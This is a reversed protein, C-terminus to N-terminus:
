YGQSWFGAMRSRWQCCSTVAVLTLKMMLSSVVRASRTISVPSQHMPQETDCWVRLPTMVSLMIVSLIIVSVYHFDVYHYEAHHCEAYIVSLMVITHVISLTM